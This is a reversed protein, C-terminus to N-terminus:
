AAYHSRELFATLYEAANGDFGELCSVEICVAFSGCSGFASAGRAYPNSESRYSYELISYEAGNCTITSQASVQYNENALGVWDLVYKQADEPTKQETVLVAMQADYLDAAEGDANIFDQPEGVAWLAYYMGSAAIADNTDRLILGNDLPEVGLIGGITTWGGDWPAGDAAQEPLRMQRGCGTLLTLIAFLMISYRKMKRSFCFGPKLRANRVAHLRPNWHFRRKM